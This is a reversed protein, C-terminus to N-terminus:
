IILIKREQKWRLVLEKQWSFQIRILRRTGDFAPYVGRPSMQIKSKELTTHVSPNGARSGIHDPLMEPLFGDVAIKYFYHTQM